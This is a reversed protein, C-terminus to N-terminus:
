RNENKLSEKLNSKSKFESAKIKKRLERYREKSIKEQKKLELIYGRLKRTLIMYKEKRKKLNKKRKGPGRKRKKVKKGNLRGHKDKILIIKEKHLELIDQKTIAEKIESLRSIDFVIRNKGVMLVRSALQKKKNLNM